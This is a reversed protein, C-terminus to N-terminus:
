ELSTKVVASHNLLCKKSLFTSSVSVSRQCDLRSKFIFMRLVTRQGDGEMQVGKVAESETERRKDTQTNSYAVEITSRVLYLLFLLSHGNMSKLIQYCKQYASCSDSILPIIKLVITQSYQISKLSFEISSQCCPYHTKLPM